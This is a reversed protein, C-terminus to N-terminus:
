EPEIKEPVYLHDAACSSPVTPGDHSHYSIRVSDIGSPAVGFVAVFQWQGRTHFRYKRWVTEQCAVVRGDKFLAVDLDGKARAFWRKMRVYGKVVTRDSDDRVSPWLVYVSRNPIVDVPIDLTKTRAEAGGTISIAAAAHAAVLLMRM